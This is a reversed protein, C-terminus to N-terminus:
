DGRPRAMNPPLVGTRYQQAFVVEDVKAPFIGARDVAERIVLSALFRDTVGRLIGGFRGVPTRVASVIYAEKM